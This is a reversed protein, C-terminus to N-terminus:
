RLLVDEVHRVFQNSLLAIVPTMVQVGEAPTPDRSILIFVASGLQRRQSSLSGPAFDLYRNSDSFHAEKKVHQARVCCGALWSAQGGVGM